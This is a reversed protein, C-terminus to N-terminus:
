CMGKKTTETVLKVKSLSPTKFNIKKLKVMEHYTAQLYHFRSSVSRRLSLPPKCM